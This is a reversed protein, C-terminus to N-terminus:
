EHTPTQSSQNITVTMEPPDINPLPISVEFMTVYEFKLSPIKIEINSIKYGESEAISSIKALIKFMHAPLTVMFQIFHDSISSFANIIEEPTKMMTDKLTGLSDTISKGVSEFIGHLRHIVHGVRTIIKEVLGTVKGFVGLHLPDNSYAPYNTNHSLVEENDHIETAVNYLNKSSLGTLMHERIQM